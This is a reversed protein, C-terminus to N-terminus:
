WTGLMREKGHVKKLRGVERSYGWGKFGTSLSWPRLRNKMPRPPAPAQLSTKSALGYIRKLKIDIVRSLEFPDLRKRLEVLEAVKHSDGQKSAVVRDLPTQPKDFVRTTKSGRRVTKILRVSPMFLNEFLRLENRYLDNLAEVVEATDYRLWGVWKRVHTKNKQEIHAQDDKKYARSRPSPRAHTQQKRSHSLRSQKPQPEFEYHCNAYCLHDPLQSQTQSSTPRSAGREGDLKDNCKNKRCSSRPAVRRHQVIPLPHAVM